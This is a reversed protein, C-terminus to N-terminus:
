LRLMLMIGIYIHGVRYRVETGDMFAVRATNVEALEWAFPDAIASNSTLGCVLCGLIKILKQM